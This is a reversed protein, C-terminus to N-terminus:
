AEAELWYVKYKAGEVYKAIINYGMARLDAIRASLRTIGWRKIADWSTLREGQQLAHLIKRNQSETKM